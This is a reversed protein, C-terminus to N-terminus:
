GYNKLFDKIKEYIERCRPKMISLIAENNDIQAIYWRSVELMEETCMHQTKMTAHGLYQDRLSLIETFIVMRHLVRDFPLKIIKKNYYSDVYTKKDELYQYSTYYGYRHEDLFLFNHALEHILLEPIAMEEAYMDYHACMVGIYSPNVSTGGNRKDTVCFITNMTLMLLSYLTDDYESIKSLASEIALKRDLPDPYMMEQTAIDVDAVRFEKTFYKSFRADVSKDSYVLTNKEIIPCHPQIVSLWNIYASKLSKETLLNINDIYPNALVLVNDIIEQASYLTYM